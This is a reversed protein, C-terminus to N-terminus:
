LLDINKICNSNRLYNHVSEKSTKNPRRKFNRLLEDGPDLSSLLWRARKRRKLKGLETDIEMELKKHEEQWKDNDEVLLICAEGGAEIQAQVQQLAPDPQLPNDLKVEEVPNPETKIEPELTFSVHLPVSSTGDHYIYNMSQEKTTTVEETGYTIVDPNPDEIFEDKDGPSKIWELEDLTVSRANAILIPASQDMTSMEHALLLQSVGQGPSTRIKSNGVNRAYTRPVNFSYNTSQPRPSTSYSNSNNLNITNLIFKNPSESSPLLQISDSGEDIEFINVNESNIVSDDLEMLQQPVQSIISNTFNSGSPVDFSLQDLGNLHFVTELNGHGNLAVQSSPCSTIEEGRENVLTVTNFNSSM